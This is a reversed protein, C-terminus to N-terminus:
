NAGKIKSHHQAGSALWTPRQEQLAHDIVIQAQPRPIQFREALENALIEKKGSWIDHFDMITASIVDGDDTYRWVIGLGDEVGRAAPETKSTVYLTDANSDYSVVFKFSGRHTM